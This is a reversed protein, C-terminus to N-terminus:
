QGHDTLERGLERLLGQTQAELRECRAALISNVEATAYCELEDLLETMRTRLSQAGRPCRALAEQLMWLQEHLSKLVLFVELREVSSLEAFRAVVSQGAGYCGYVVCGRCGLELRRAHIGCRFNPLLHRCPEGAGKDFAFDESRDFPHAVCCLGVCASCDAVLELRRM